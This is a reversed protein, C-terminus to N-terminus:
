AMRLYEQYNEFEGLGQLQQDIWLRPLRHLGPPSDKDLSVGVTIECQDDGCVQM